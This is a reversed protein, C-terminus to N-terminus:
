EDALDRQGGTCVVGIAGAAAAGNGAFVCLQGIHVVHISSSLFYWAKIICTCKNEYVSHHNM